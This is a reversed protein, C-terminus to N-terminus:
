PQNKRGPHQQWHRLMGNRIRQKHEDSKPVNRQRESILERSLPSLCNGMLARSIKARTEASNHGGKPPM